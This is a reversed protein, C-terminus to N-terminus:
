FPENPLVTQAYGFLQTDLTFTETMGDATMTAHMMDRNILSEIGAASFNPSRNCEGWTIVTRGHWVFAQVVAKEESGLNEFLEKIRDQSNIREQSQIWYSEIASALLRVVPFVIITVFAAVVWDSWYLYAALGAGGAATTAIGRGFDSEAYIREVWRDFKM